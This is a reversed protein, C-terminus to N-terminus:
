NDNSGQISVRRTMSGGGLRVGTGTGTANDTTGSAVGAATALRQQPQQAVAAITSRPPAAAAAAHDEDPGLDLTVPAAADADTPLFQSSAVPPSLQGSGAAAYVGGIAAPGGPAPPSGGSSAM